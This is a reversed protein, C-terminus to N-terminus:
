LEYLVQAKEIIKNTKVESIMFTLEFPKRKVKDKQLQEQGCSNSGLGSMEHDLHLTIFSDEVLDITHKAKELKEDSYLSLNFDCKDETKIVLGQKGNHLALFKMNQHHGNEQPYIYSEHLGKVDTKFVDVYAAQMSDVYNEKPGLGYYIVKEYKKNINLVFGLRPLFEPEFSGNQYDKAKIKITLNDQDFEYIYDLYYGWTQSLCGFYKHMIIQLLGDKDKIEYGENQERSLNIFYKNLWDDKKYMDNDITARYISMCPGKEIIKNNNIFLDKLTGNLLDFHVILKNNKVTLLNGKQIKTIKGIKKKIRIEKTKKYLFQYRGLEYNKKAYKTDKKLRVVINLYIDSNQYPAKITCDLKYKKNNKAAVDISFKGKKIIKDLCKFEYTFIYDKSSIFDNHNYITLIDNKYKIEIPCNVQKYELLGVSVSRDPKLLGDICFNGNHPFENFDGGYKYYINNNEDRAEIGHDYWEWVFGGSLRSHKRYLDTYVKLNGPGNGMAHGYECHIHPKGKKVAIEKLKDIWTYMTSYVDAVKCDVDGEYHILRSKDIQKIAKKMAFFNQGFGSENGLSYMIISPHNFDRKVMRVCREVYAKEFLSNDSFMEYNKVYGAGDCELDTEDIVYLGYEDALDYLTDISPYHSTRIANINHKKMLIIDQKTIEQSIYRGKDPSYDHHNVGKFIIRKGNLCLVNNIIKIERFGFRYTVKHKNINLELTYLYPEEANWACINNLTEKIRYKKNKTKVTKSIIEKHNSDLIRYQLFTDQDLLVDASFVGDRYNNILTTNIRCDRIAFLPENILKVDRFIGSYSWQDQDELYTGDSYKYVVVCIENQGQRVKDSIDFEGPMRSIKRFGVYENNIYLDYASDVGEFKIISKNKLWKEDLYFSRRYIGTPNEQPVFPPHIPFHYFVDTYWMQDYGQNQIVGPVEIDDWNDIKQHLYNKNFLKPSILLKFKWIGNLFIQRSSDTYFSSHTQREGISIINPNEWKELKRKYM